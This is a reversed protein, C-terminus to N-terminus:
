SGEGDCVAVHHPHVLELMEAAEAAYKCKSRIRSGYKHFLFPFPLCGVVLFAPISSAWQAGLGAYMQATCLPFATAFFSRLMTNAALASAAYVTDAFWYACEARVLDCFSPPFTCCDILYSILSIFVMVLGCSFLTAGIVPAIWHVSPYTTWAFLFLGIPLVVSGLIANYLRAEPEVAQGAITAAAALRMYYKNEAGAALVAFCVGIAVGVFPLGAISQSWGRTGEFVIPIAAIFM